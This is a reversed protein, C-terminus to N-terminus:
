DAPGPRVEDSLAGLGELLNLTMAPQDFRYAAGRSEAYAAVAERTHPDFVGNTAGGYFGATRLRDQISRILSDSVPQAIITYNSGNASPVIAVRADIAVLWALEKGDCTLRFLENLTRNPRDDAPPIIVDSLNPDHLDFPIGEFRVPKWTACTKGELWHLTPGFIVSQPGDSPPAVDAPAAVSAARRYATLAYEGVLPFGDETQLREWAVDQEGLPDAHLGASMAPIAAAVMLLRKIFLMRREEEFCDYRAARQNKRGSRFHRM